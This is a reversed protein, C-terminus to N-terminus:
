EASNNQLQRENTKLTILKRKKETNVTIDKKSKDITKEVLNDIDVNERIVAAVNNLIGNAFSVYVGEFFEAVIDVYENIIVNKDTTTSKLEYTALRFCQLLISDLTETTDSKNLLKNILADIEEKNEIVGNILSKVFEHKFINKYDNKGNSHNFNDLIYYKNINELIYDIDKNEINDNYYMYLAQCSLLRAVSKKLLISM